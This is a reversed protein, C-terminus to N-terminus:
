PFISNENSWRQTMKRSCFPNHRASGPHRGCDPLPSRASLIPTLTLFYFKFIFDLGIPPEIDGDASWIEPAASAGPGVRHGPGVSPADHAPSDDAHCLSLLLLTLFCLFPRM